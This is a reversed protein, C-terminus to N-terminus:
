KDCCSLIEESKIRKLQELAVVCWRQAHSGRKWGIIFTFDAKGEIELCIAISRATGAVSACENAAFHGADIAALTRATFRNAAM